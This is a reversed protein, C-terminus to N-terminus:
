QSAIRRRGYRREIIRWTRAWKEVPDWRRSSTRGKSQVPVNVIPRFGAMSKYPFAKLGEIWQADAAYDSTDPWRAIDRRVVANATDTLKLGPPDNFFVKGRRLIPFLVWHPSDELTAVIDELVKDDFLFNDDDLMMCYEGTAMEWAIHRCTNGYDHHPVSCKIVFRKPHRIEGLLAENITPRDVMVIHEWEAYTQNNVSNCTKALSSRQLTPTIITFKM